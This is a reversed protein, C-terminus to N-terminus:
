KIKFYAPGLTSGDVTVVLVAYCVGTTTPTKWNQIYQGAPAVGDYRLATGGTATMEIADEPASTPTCAVKNVQFAGAAFVELGSQEVGTVVNRVDFKLPVTQGGKITNYVRAGGTPTMDVPAHFGTGAYLPTISAATTWSSGTLVYNGADAGTLTFGTATVTKGTGVTATAFTATGDALDLDDGVVEGDLTRTLITAATTGDWVKDAATFSATVAKPTIDATATGDSEPALAYNGSDAGALALIGTVTKGTGVNRDAFAAGTVTVSVDEGAVVGTLAGPHVTAGTGGDYVKDDATFSGVLLRPWISAHDTATDSALVYNDADTGTLAITSTVLKDIGVHRDAFDAGLVDVSVDDSGIRGALPLGVATAATAGDYTKDEAQIAGTVTLPAITASATGTGSLVYNGADAGSLVAGSLTATRTGADASGFTATAGSCDLTVDDGDVVGELGGAPLTCSTITADVSGDYTKGAVTFAGTLARPAIVLTGSVSEAAYDAHDLSAVVGHSGADSPAASAGDYTVAVGSLGEPTTTASAAHPAGDYAHPGLDGLTLTASAKAITFTTSTEPAADHDDDGAQNATVTCDGAGDLTLTTGNLTCPGSTTLAVPLGSSASAEVTVPADGFTRTAIPTISITQGAKAIDFARTVPTAAAHGNGAAQNATVACSGAGTISITAGNTGSSACDGAATFTVPNGSAGGTASVVFPADGYTRDPLEAFTITQSRVGVTYAATTQLSASTRGVNAWTTVAFSGQGSGPALAQFTVTVTEGEDLKQSNGGAGLRITRTASDYSGTWTPHGTVGVLSIGTLHVPVVVDASAVARASGGEITVSVAQSVGPVLPNPSVSATPDAAALTPSPVSVLGLLAVALAGVLCAMRRRPGAASPFSM